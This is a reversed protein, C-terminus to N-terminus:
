SRLWSFLPPESQRYFRGPSTKPKPLTTTSYCLRLTTLRLTSHTVERLLGYEYCVHRMWDILKVRHQWTIQKHQRELYGPQVSYEDQLKFLRSLTESVCEDNIQRELGEFEKLERQFNRKGIVKDSGEGLNKKPDGKWGRGFEFRAGPAKEMNPRREPVLSKKEVPKFELEENCMFDDIPSTNARSILTAKPPAKDRAEQSPKEQKGDVFNNKKTMQLPKTKAPNNAVPETTSIDHLSKDHKPNNKVQGFSLCKHTPHNQQKKDVTNMVPYPIHQETKNLNLTKHLDM